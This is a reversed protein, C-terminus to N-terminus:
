TAACSAPILECRITDASYHKTLDPRESNDETQMRRLEKQVQAYNVIVKVSSITTQSRQPTVKRHVSSSLRFSGLPCFGGVEQKPHLKRKGGELRSRPSTLHYLGPLLYPKMERKLPSSRKACRERKSPTPRRLVPSRTSNSTSSVSFPAAATSTRSSELSNFSPDRSCMRSPYADSIDM